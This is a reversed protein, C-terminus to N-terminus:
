KGHQLYKPDLERLIEALNDATTKLQEETHLVNVFFRLRAGSEEVAPHLIPQVSIGRAHMQRSARISHLSNGLIVPIIATDKSPGTNFGHQRCLGMFYEARKHLTTVRENSAQLKRIAVLSAAASPPALGITFIVGPCTYKVLQVLPKQGAIYGGCAGLAKSLTGMWVDVDQSKIGFFETMGRGSKGMTGISHAEDMLLWCKHRNKVEIFRPVDPYDGDMSYVGEVVILVRRYEHRIESLIKELARWDNHPFPRRRAGSLIAGQMISNHSLADHLILDGAGFLHGIVTENTSHGGVLVIAAETGIFDAIGRELAGHLPKEGSVLRSASVSTGYRAVADRTANVVVPDGSMGIYNYSCFNIYEQGNIITRDNMIGEHV